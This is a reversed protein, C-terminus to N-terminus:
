FDIYDPEFGFRMGVNYADIMKMDEQELGFDFVQCENNSVIEATGFGLRPKQVGNRLMVRSNLNLKEM